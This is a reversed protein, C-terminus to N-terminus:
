VIAPLELPLNPVSRFQKYLKKANTITKVDAKEPKRRAVEDWPSPAHECQALFAATVALELAIADAKKAIEILSDRRADGTSHHPARFISYRGGWNARREEETAYGLAIARDVSVVLDESYPGFKHYDFRFGYGLGAMELLALTKQLRTRGVLEEAAAIVDGVDKARGRIM